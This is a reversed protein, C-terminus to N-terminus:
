KKIMIWTNAYDPLHKNAQHYDSWGFYSDVLFDLQFLNNDFAGGTDALIGMQSVSESGQQYNIMILKGLGLQAVNGAFTVHPKVAIKNEITKGYGMISPVEAFYWYRAQETKGISYDYSIDNNRHVNFYRTKGDIKLVGTGQLLVDHLSDESIWVLPKALNNSDLVGNIVQQRTYKFRTLKHKQLEAQELTLHQEDFPIAYLAQNFEATKVASAELLKTYYKTIFLQEDPINNLLRTKIENTSTKAINDATTKDPYWRYFDFNQKLFESNQMRSQQKARVDTVYTQCIFALTQDVKELSINADFIQGSHVGYSDTKHNNAFYTRTNKAVTCLDSTKFLKVQGIDPMPELVFKGSNAFAFSNIGCLMLLMIKLKLKM